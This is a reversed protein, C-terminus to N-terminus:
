KRGVYKECIGLLQHGIAKRSYAKTIEASLAEPMFPYAILKELVAVFYDVKNESTFGRGETVFELLSPLNSTIVPTGTALAELAILGFTEYSSAHILFDSQQIIAALAAKNQRPLLEFQINTQAAMQKLEEAWPGGGVFTYKITHGTKRQLAELAEVMLFPLKPPSLEQASCFHVVGEKPQKAKFSFSETDIVNPLTIVPRGIKYPELQKGLFESVTLVASACTYAKYLKAGWISRTMFRQVGSWHEIILYPVGWRVSLEQAWMGAPYGVNGIILDPKEANSVKFYRELLIRQWAPSNYIFQQFRTTLITQKETIGNNTIVQHSAEWFSKGKVLCMAWVEVEAGANQLAIAHERVFVGWNPKEITPYWPTLFLVKM